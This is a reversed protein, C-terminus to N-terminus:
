VPSHRARATPARRRGLSAERSRVRWAPRLRRHRKATSARPSRRTVASRAPSLGRSTETCPAQASRLAPPLHASRCRTARIRAGRSASRRGATRPCIVRSGSPPSEPVRTKRPTPPAVGDAVRARRRRGSRGRWPDPRETGSRARRTSREAARASPKTKLLRRARGGEAIARERLGARPAPPAQATQPLPLM